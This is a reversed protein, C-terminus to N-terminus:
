WTLTSCLTRWDQSYVTLWYHQKNNKAQNFSLYEGFDMAVVQTVGDCLKEKDINNYYDLMQSSRALPLFSVAYSLHFNTGEEDEQFYHFCILSQLGFIFELESCVPLHLSWLEVCLFLYIIDLLFVADVWRKDPSTWTQWIIFYRTYPTTNVACSHSVKAGEAVEEEEVAPQWAAM